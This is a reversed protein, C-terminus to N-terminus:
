IEPPLMSTIIAIMRQTDANNEAIFNCFACFIDYFAINFADLGYGLRLGCIISVSLKFIILKQAISLVNVNTEENKLM